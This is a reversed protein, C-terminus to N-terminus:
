ITSRSKVNQHLQDEFLNEEEFKISLEKMSQDGKITEPLEDDEDDEEDEADEDLVEDIDSQSNEGDGVGQRHTIQVFRSTLVASTKWLPEASPSPLSQRATENTCM